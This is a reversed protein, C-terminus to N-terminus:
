TNLKFMNFYNLCFKNIGKFNTRDNKRSNEM